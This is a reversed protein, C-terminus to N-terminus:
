HLVFELHFSNNLVLLVLFAMILFILVMEFNTIFILLSRVVLACSCFHYVGWGMLKLPNSLYFKTKAM